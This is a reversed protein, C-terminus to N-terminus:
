GQQRPKRKNEEKRACGIKKIKRWDFSTISQTARSPGKIKVAARGIGVKANGIDTGGM